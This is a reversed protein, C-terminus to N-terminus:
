LSFVSFTVRMQLCSIGSLGPKTGFQLLTKAAMSIKHLAAEMFWSSAPMQTHIIMLEPVTLDKIELLTWLISLL